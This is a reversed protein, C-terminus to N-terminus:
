AFAKDLFAKASAPREDPSKALAALIAADLSEPCDKRLQRPATPAESLHAFGIAIANDGAFPPRGTVLHYSLAGLSYIDSRADVPKGRVQEPAMYHPTGLIAGTATLGEGMQTTALGFDIIKVAGREGVLVNSPKLDRHIVGAAHAAELGSCIQQLMDQVDKIPVLGRQAIVEALTRGAFYEMSLYLLGPRAEGLDHIRIVSPSSVKRAAAAERRFRAIMAQEDSSFASSIVKLAVLEHLVEDDALYVAGMGGKGLLRQVRYRQALIQGSELSTTLPKAPAGHATATRDLAPTIENAKNDSPKADSAKADPLQQMPGPSAPALVLSRHEDIVKALKKNLEYDVSCVIAELNEVRERLMKNEELLLQAQQAQKGAALQAQPNKAALERMKADHRTKLAYLPVAFAGLVAVLGVLDM